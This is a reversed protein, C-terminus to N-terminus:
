ARVGKQCAERQEVLHNSEGPMRADPLKALYAAILQRLLQGITLGQQAAARSLGALHCGQLLLSLEVCEIEPPLTRDSQRAVLESQMRSERPNIGECRREPGRRRRRRALDRVAEGLEVLPFPKQSYARVVPSALIIRTVSSPSVDGILVVAPVPQPQGGQCLWALVAEAGGWPLTVDLVLVDPLFLPMMAMCEPSSAATEVHCGCGSLFSHYTDRLSPNGDAIVVRPTM